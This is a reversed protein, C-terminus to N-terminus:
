AMNDLIVALGAALRSAATLRDGAQVHRNIAALASRLTTIREDSPSSIESGAARRHFEALKRAADDLVNETAAIGDDIHDQVIIGILLTALDDWDQPIPADADLLTEGQLERALIEALKRLLIVQANNM